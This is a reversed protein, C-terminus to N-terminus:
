GWIQVGKVSSKGVGAGMACRVEESVRGGEMACDRSSSKLDDKETCRKWESIVKSPHSYCSVVLLVEPSTERCVHVAASARERMEPFLRGSAVM